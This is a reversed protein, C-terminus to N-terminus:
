LERTMQGLPRSTGPLTSDGPSVLAAHSFPGQRPCPGLDWAPEPGAPTSPFADTLQRVQDAIAAAEAPATLARDILDAILVMEGEKMGRTTVAPTGLRIGSAVFPKETDFPITNKNVTIGVADLREEAEKGTLGRAKVDVLLLHNDTGGSVLRM